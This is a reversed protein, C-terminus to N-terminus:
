ESDNGRSALQYLNVLNYESFPPPQTALRDAWKEIFKAQNIQQYKKQGTGGPKAETGSTVGEYHIVVSEPQYYVRRGKARVMFCYDSDDYYIPVYRTDLGGLEEYLWRWTALLAGSCYDVERLYSFLPLDPDFTKGFNWASADSFVVGGAEQLTGNPYILKGGVVGASPQDRLTRLLPELWGPQPSTDNNLLVIVDKTAAAAGRNCVNIFGINTENRLVTVRTDIRELEDLHAQTEANSADDVVIIEVNLSDPLTKHLASICEQTFDFHNYSPVIISASPLSEHQALSASEWIVTVQAPAATLRIVRDAAVRKAETEREYDEDEIVVVDITHDLYPLTKNAATFFPQSFVPYLPLSKALDGEIDWALIAPAHDLRNWSEALLNELAPLIGAYPVGAASQSTAAGQAPQASAPPSEAAQVPTSPTLMKGSSRGAYRREGRLWRRFRNLLAFPGQSFLISLTTRILYYARLRKTGIPLLRSKLSWWANVFRWSRTAQIAALEAQLRALVDRYYAETRAQEYRTEEAQRTLQRIAQERENLREDLEQAMQQRQAAEATLQRILQERQAAEVNLQRIVEQGEDVRAILKQVTQEHEAIRTTIQQIVQDREVLRMMLEALHTERGIAETSLRQTAESLAEVAGSLHLISDNREKLEQRLGAIEEYRENLAAMYNQLRPVLSRYLTGRNDLLIEAPIAPLKRDSCIAVYYRPELASKATIPYDLRGTEVETFVASLPEGAQVFYSERDEAIISSTVLNQGFLTVHGFYEHLLELFEERGLEHEHFPNGEQPLTYTVRNPSSIVLVGDATLAHKIHDLFRRQNRFHEITEFSVVLDLSNKALAFHQADGQVFCTNPRRHYDRAHRITRADIDVGLVSQAVQALMTAGYGEGCSIDLVRANRAYPLAFLYRHVHEYGTLYDSSWPLFREGNDELLYRPMAERVEIKSDAPESSFEPSADAVKV